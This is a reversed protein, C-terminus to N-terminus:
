SSASWPACPTERFSGGDHLNNRLGATLGAFNVGKIASVKTKYPPKRLDIGGTFNPYRLPFKPRFPPLSPLFVPM